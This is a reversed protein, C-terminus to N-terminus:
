FYRYKRKKVIKKILVSYLVTGAVTNLVLQLPLEKLAFAYTYPSHAFSYVLWLVSVFLWTSVLMTIIANFINEINFYVKGIYVLVGVVAITFAEPGIYPAYMADNILGFIPGFFLGPMVDDYVFTFIVTLCLMMNLHTAVEPVTGYLFPQLMLAGLYFLFAQWYKM